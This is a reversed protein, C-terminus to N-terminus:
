RGGSRIPRSSCRQAGTVLLIPVVLIALILGTAPVITLWFTRSDSDEPLDIDLDIWINVDKSQAGIRDISAIFQLRGVQTEHNGVAVHATTGGKLTARDITMPFAAALLEKPFVGRHYLNNRDDRIIFWLDPHERTLETIEPTETVGLTGDANREVHKALVRIIAENTDELEPDIIWVWGALLVFFLMLLCAQLGILRRTLVWKLSRGSRMKM